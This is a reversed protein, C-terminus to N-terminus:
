LLRGGWIDRGNSLAATVFAGENLMRRSDPLPLPPHVRMATGIGSCTPYAGAPDNFTFQFTQM